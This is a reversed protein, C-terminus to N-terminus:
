LEASAMTEALQEIAVPYYHYELEHVKSALSEATDASDVACLAQMIIAGSDYDSDVYHVTIGSYRDGCDIVDQHVRLGYMGKGGHKPLLAPHINIIARPFLELLYAPMRLLYGALVILRIGYKQLLAVVRQRNEMDSRTLVVAPVHLKAAHELVRADGRSAVILAVNVSGTGNFYEVIRQANTGEGSAFIAINVM